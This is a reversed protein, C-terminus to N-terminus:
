AAACLAPAMAIEEHILARRLKALANNQLQRTRERTIGLKGGVEELTPPEEGNLGYRASIIKRERENLVSLADIVKERLDSDRLAEFPTQEREDPVLEALVDEATDNIPADLSCPRAGALKLDSIQAEGIGLEESMEEDTPEHGLSESMQLSVTRMKSLKVASHRPLRIIKGQNHLASKIAQKIWWVAYSSLKAGKAPDFREVAKMLGINGEEILDSLPLGLNVYDVAIKVVFRLNARIMLTRAEADGQQIRAALAIEEAPTLLPVQGIESMYKKLGADVENAIMYTKM